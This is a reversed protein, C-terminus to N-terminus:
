LDPSLCPLCRNQEDKIKGVKEYVWLLMKYMKLDLGVQKEIEPKQIKVAVWEDPKAGKLRAKHVQALSASALPKPDFYDFADDLTKQGDFDSEFVAKIQDYSVFPARDYLSKFAERYPKPLVAAQIGLSQGLKIYLGGNSECLDHIKWAVREHLANIQDTNGPRFSWKYDVAIVFGTWATRASRSLTRANFYHDWLGVVGLAATAAVLSRFSSRHVLSTRSTTAYSRLYKRQRYLNSRRTKLTLQQGLCRHAFASGAM